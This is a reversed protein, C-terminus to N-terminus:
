HWWILDLFLYMSPLLTERFSNRLNIAPLAALNDILNVTPPSIPEFNIRYRWFGCNIQAELLQDPTCAHASKFFQTCAEHTM